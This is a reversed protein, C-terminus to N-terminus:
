FLYHVITYIIGYFPVCLSALGHFLSDTMVATYIGAPVSFLGALILGLGFIGMIGHGLIGSKEAHKKVRQAQRLKDFDWSM